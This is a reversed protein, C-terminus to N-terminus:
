VHGQELFLDGNEIVGTENEMNMQISDASKVKWEPDDVTVKGKAEMDNTARNFRVENAKLTTGERKIVVNGSADIQNAGNGSELKDAELNIESGSTQAGPAILQAAGAPAVFALIAGALAAICSGPILKM